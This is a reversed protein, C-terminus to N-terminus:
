THAGRPGRLIRAVLLTIPAVFFSFLAGMKVSDQLPGPPFAVISVFLAVTFGIGAACGVVPTGLICDKRQCGAVFRAAFEIPSEDVLPDADDLPGATPRGGVGPAPERDLKELAKEIISM